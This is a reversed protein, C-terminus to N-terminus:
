MNSKKAQVRVEGNEVNSEVFQNVNGAVFNERKQLSNVRSTKKCWQQNHKCKSRAQRIM